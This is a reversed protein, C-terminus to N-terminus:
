WRARKIIRGKAEVANYGKYVERVKRIFESKYLENQTAKWLINDVIPDHWLPRVVIEDSLKEPPLYSKEEVFITKKNGVLGMIENVADDFYSFFRRQELPIQLNVKEYMELYNM